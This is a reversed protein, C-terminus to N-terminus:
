REANTAQKRGRHTRKPKPTKTSDHESPSTSQIYERVLAIASDINGDSWSNIGDDIQIEKPLVKVMLEYFRGPNARAWDSLKAGPTTQLESFATQMAEKFERNLKNTAGVPRGSPNGSQGPAYRM